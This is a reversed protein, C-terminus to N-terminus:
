LNVSGILNKTFITDIFYKVSLNRSSDLNSQVDTVNVVGYCQLLESKLALLLPAPDKQGLLQFWRMGFDTNFFCESYFTKLRTEINKMIADNDRLYSQKGRGFAWDGTSTLGRFIM